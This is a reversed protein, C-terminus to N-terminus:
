TNESHDEIAVQLDGRYTDLRVRLDDPLLSGFEDLLEAVLDRVAELTDAREYTLRTPMM